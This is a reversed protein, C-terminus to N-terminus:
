SMADCNEVFVGSLGKGRNGRQETPVELNLCGM